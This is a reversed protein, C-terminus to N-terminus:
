HIGSCVMGIRFAIWVRGGGYRAAKGEWDEEKTM